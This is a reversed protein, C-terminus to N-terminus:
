RYDSLLNLRRRQYRPPQYVIHPPEDDSYEIPYHRSLEKRIIHKTEKKREKKERKRLTDEGLIRLQNLIELQIDRGQLQRKSKKTVPKPEEEEYESESYYEYEDSPDSVSTASPIASSQSPNDNEVTTTTEPAVTERRRVIYRGEAKTPIVEVEPDEEGQLWKQIYEARQKGRISM